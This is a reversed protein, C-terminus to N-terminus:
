LPEMVYSLSRERLDVGVSGLVAGPIRFALGSITLVLASWFGLTGLAKLASAPASITGLSSVVAARLEANTVLLSELFATSSRSVTALIAAVSTDVDQVLSPAHEAVSDLIAVASQLASDVFSFLPVFLTALVWLVWTSISVRLLVKGPVNLAVSVARYRQARTHMARDSVYLVGARERVDSASGSEVVCTDGIVGVRDVQM